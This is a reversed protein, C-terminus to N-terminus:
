KRYKNMEEEQQIKANRLIMAGHQQSINTKINTLQGSHYGVALLEEKTYYGNLVLMMPEYHIEKVDFASYGAAHIQLPPICLAKMDRATAGAMRLEIPPYGAEHLQKWSYAAERLESAHRGAQRLSSAPYGGERIQEISLSSLESPACGAERLEEMSFGLAALELPSLGASRLETPAYGAQKLQPPSFTLLLTSAPTGAARHGRCLANAKAQVVAEVGKLFSPDNNYWEPEHALAHLSLESHFFTLAHADVDIGSGSLAARIETEMNEGM